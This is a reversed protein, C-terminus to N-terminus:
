EKDEKNKLKSNIIIALVFYIISMGLPITLLAGHSYVEVSDITTFFILVGILTIITIILLIVDIRNLISIGNKLHLIVISYTNFGFYLFWFVVPIILGSFIIIGFINLCLALFLKGILLLINNIYIKL